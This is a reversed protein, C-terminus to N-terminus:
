KRVGLFKKSKPIFPLKSEYFHITFGDRCLDDLLEPLQAFPRWKLDLLPYIRVEGGPKCVRALERVAQLHFEYGFQEAYLFLFHSCLVTTFHNDPFPLHPLKGAAYRGEALGADYDALFLELSAERNARHKDIDGYYTWDFKDALGALKATSVEIETRGHEEIRERSLSYLPDAAAARIGRKNASAVFSSAGAGVDLVYGKKLAEEDLDFMEIYEGFSRCTMAVGVQEYFSDQQRGNVNPMEERENM